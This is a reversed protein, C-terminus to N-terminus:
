PICFFPLALQTLQDPADFNVASAGPIIVLRASPLLRTLFAAWPQPAIPDHEGRVVLM